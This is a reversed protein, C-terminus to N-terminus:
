KQCIDIMCRLRRRAENLVQKQWAAMHPEEGSLEHLGHIWEQSCTRHKSIARRIAIRKWRQSQKHRNNDLLRELESISSKRLKEIFELDQLAARAAAVKTRTVGLM